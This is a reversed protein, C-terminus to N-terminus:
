LYYVYVLGRDAAGNTFVKIVDAGVTLKTDDIAAAWRTMVQDVAMVLAAGIAAAAAKLTATGGANAATCIATMDIIKSGVPIDVTKGATADATIPVEICKVIRGPKAELQQVYPRFSVATQAGGAGEEATCVGAPVSGEVPADIIKGAAGAGGPLFHLVKGVTFTDTVEIQETRIDRNFTIDLYGAAAIAIGASEAVNGLFGDLLVLENLLAARGLDNTVKVPALRAGEIEDKFGYLNPLYTNM